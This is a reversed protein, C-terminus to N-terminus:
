TGTVNLFIKVFRSIKPVWTGKEMIWRWGMSAEAMCQLACVYAEIWLQREGEGSREWLWYGINM